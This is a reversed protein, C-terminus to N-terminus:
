KRGSKPFVVLMPMSITEHGYAKNSDLHQIVKEIYKKTYTTNSLATDTKLRGFFPIKSTNEIILRQNPFFSNILEAKEKFNTDWRNEHLFWPICPINKNNHFSKLVSWHLKQSISLNILKKSLRSYYREKSAEMSVALLNKFSSSVDLTSNTTIVKKLSNIHRM